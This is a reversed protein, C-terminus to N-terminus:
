HAAPQPRPPCASGSALPLTLPAASLTQAPRPAVARCPVCRHHDSYRSTAILVRQKESAM